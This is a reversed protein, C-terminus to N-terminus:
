FKITAAGVAPTLPRSVILNQAPDKFCLCSHHWVGMSSTRYPSLSQMTPTGHSCLSLALTRVIPPVADLPLSSHPSLAHKYDLFFPFSFFVACTCTKLMLLSCCKRRQFNPLCTKKSPLSVLVMQERCLSLSSLFPVRKSLALVWLFCMVLSKEVENNLGHSIIKLNDAM